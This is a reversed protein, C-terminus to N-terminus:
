EFKSNEDISNGNLFEKISVMKKGPLQISTILLVGEKLNVEIGEKSIKKITGPPGSEKINLAKASGVKVREGNLSSIASPYPNMARILNVLEQGGKNFDLQALDKNFKKVYSAQSDDQKIAKIKGLYVEEITKSLLKAGRVMLEDHLDQSNWDDKIEVEEKLLMDGTDLGEAMLMTTNGTIKEGALIAAQIPAAGRYKPLLSAHLNISAIKAIDLIERTLIQGYAVVIIFDPKEDRIRQIAEPSMKLNEPKITPINEKECLSGVSSPYVKKGRGRPRDPQTVVLTVNYKDKLLNLSERAFDPTGMFVIRIDKGEM